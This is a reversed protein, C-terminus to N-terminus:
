AKNANRKIRLVDTEWFSIVHLVKKTDEIAQRRGSFFDTLWNWPQDCFYADDIHLFVINEGSLDNFLKMSVM